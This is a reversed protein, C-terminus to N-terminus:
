KWRAMYFHAMEDQTMPYDLDKNFAYTRGYIFLPIVYAQDAIKKLANAYLEKRKAPDTTSDATKLWDRIEPDRAYDDVGFEFYYSTSASADLMGNSGFTLHAM